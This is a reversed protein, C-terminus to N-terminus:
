REVTLMYPPPCTITVGEAPAFTWGIQGAENQELRPIETGNATIRAPCGVGVLRFRLTKTTQGTAIEWGQQTANCRIQVDEDDDKLTFRSSEAPFILVDLRDVKKEGIYSLVPGLPVVAGERLFLPLRDLPAEYDLYLPGQCVEATWYDLWKGAPLYIVREDRETLVPAVMLWEGLTFQSDVAHAAPDCQFELLLPRMLPLGTQSAEHAYSYLYPILQYRLRAYKRFIAVADDGYAWPERPTTGHCRALPSLLGFEAWRIYLRPTPRSGFFGGIDHGWFPIGSLALSLGGRLTGAMSSYSTQPDGGWHVPYQQSGTYGSRAWVLGQKNRARTVEFVARNYLVSYLNHLEIGTIGSYASVADDPVQEGFDTKFVDVGLEMLAEHKEQIWRMADPNTFDPLGAPPAPPLGDFSGATEQGQFGEQNHSAMVLGTNILYDEGQPNKLLFGAQQAEDFMATGSPVFPGEWVCSKFGQAKLGSLMERPNPFREEDWLLDCQHADRVWYGDFVLVDCPIDLTRLQQAVEEALARNHFYCRSMWLGFAWQPPVPAYGTLDAYRRLIHKFSPGRIVFYDLTRDEVMLVYSARSYDPDGVAHRMRATSNVLVGYGQDCLFFPINKYARETEVGYADLNWTSITHGRKDHAFFKEGFGYVRDDPELAFSDAVGAINGEDLLYSLAPVNSGGRVNTDNRQEAWFARGGADHISWQFPSLHVTCRLDGASLYVVGDGQELTPCPLAAPLQVLPFLPQTDEQFMRFRVTDDFVFEIAITAQLGGETTARFLAGSPTQRLFAAGIVQESTTM